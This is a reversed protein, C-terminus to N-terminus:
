APMSKLTKARIAATAYSQSTRLWHHHAGDPGISRAESVWRAETSSTPTCWRRPSTPMASCNRCPASTTGTRSCIRPSPIGSPTRVSASAPFVFQWRWETSANPYKRDLAFPLVVRGYGGQLDKMHQAKVVDLHETLPVVVSAPLVTIRDKQGKGRRIVIQRQTLDIDKVRLELCEQLRLGAGYLIAAILWMVGRLRELVVGVEQRSLVVPVRVPMRAQPVHEIAGLEVRLVERYLFLIASRAQNQTSASVQRENGLWTLFTSIDAAGMESPHRKRHYVIFRRIWDVYACETRRSYHRARITQRVRDLLRPPHNPPTRDPSTDSM